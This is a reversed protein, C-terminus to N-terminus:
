IVNFSLQKDGIIKNNLVNRYFTTKSIKKDVINNIFNMADIMTNFTIINDTFINKMYVKKSRGNKSGTNAISIKKNRETYNSWDYGTLSISLNKKHENTKEKNKLSNSINKCHEDTRILNKFRITIDNIQDNSLKKGKHYKKNNEIIFYRRAMKCEEYLRSSKILQNKGMHTIAYFAFAMEKNKYIRWLLWHSIFHERATLYVLNEKDNTGRMSRPLIHHKEYYGNKDLLRYKRSEILNNYCKEYDMFMFIQCNTIVM